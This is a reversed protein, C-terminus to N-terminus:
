TITWGTVRKNADRTYTWTRTGDTISSVLNNGDRTFVLTRGGDLAVQTVFGGVRTVVGNRTSVFDKGILDGSMTDGAKLVYDDGLSQQILLYSEDDLLQVNRFSGM